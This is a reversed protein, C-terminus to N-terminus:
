LKTALHHLCRQTAHLGITATMHTVSGFGSICNLKTGLERDPTTSVEGDCTPFVPSESSFICEIGLKKVKNQKGKPFGHDQRLKTRVQKLLNDNHAKSLDSIKIKTPDTLGGAGGCTVLPIHRKHSEALLHTKELVLDIADILFDFQPSLLEEANKKSYFKQECVILCDPNIARVREAMVETKQKGIDGDMAHLQRNINSICIEDLDVMTIQGIGSRALAEVAWSGVGGIGMVCVHSDQFRELISTGYLRAIGGFREITSQNLM